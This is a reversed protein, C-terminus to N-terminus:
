GVGDDLKGAPVTATSTYSGRGNMHTTNPSSCLCTLYLARRVLFVGIRFFNGDSVLTLESVIEENTPHVDHLHQGGVLDTVTAEGKGMYHPFRWLDYCICSPRAEPGDRRVHRSTPKTPGLDRAIAPPGLDYM